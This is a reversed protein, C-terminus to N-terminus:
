LLTILAHPQVLHFLQHIPQVLHRGGRDLREQPRTSRSGPEFLPRGIVAIDDQVSKTSRNSLDPQDSETTLRVTAVSAVM